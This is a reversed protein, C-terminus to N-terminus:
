RGGAQRAAAMRQVAEALERDNLWAFCLRAFPISQGDLAYRRGTYWSVGHELGRRSWAEVDIGPRVHVWFAM